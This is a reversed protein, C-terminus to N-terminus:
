TTKPDNKSKEACRATGFNMLNLKWKWIKAWHLSNLPLFSWLVFLVNFFFQWSEHSPFVGGDTMATWLTRKESSVNINSGVVVERFSVTLRGRFIPWGFLYNIKWGELKLPLGTTLKLSSMFEDMPQCSYWPRKSIFHVSWLHLSPYWTLRLWNVETQATGERFSVFQM